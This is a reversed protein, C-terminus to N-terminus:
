LHAKDIRKFLEIGNVKGSMRQHNVVEALFEAETVERQERRSKALRGAELAASVLKLEGSLM